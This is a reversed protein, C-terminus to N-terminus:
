RIFVLSTAIGVLLGALAYLSSRLVSLNYLEKVCLTCGAYVWLTGLVVRVPTLAVWWSATWVSPWGIVVITEPLWMLPLVLIGYPLGVVGLLRRYSIDRGPVILYLTSGMLLWSALAVPLNFLTQYLYYSELPLALFPAAASVGRAYLLFATASYLVGLALVGLLGVRFHDPDVVLASATKSPRVVISAAYRLYKVATGGKATGM